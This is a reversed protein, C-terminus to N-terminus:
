LRVVNVGALFDDPMFEILWSWCPLFPCSWTSLKSFVFSFFGVFCCSRLLSLFRILYRCSVEELRISSLLVLEHKLWGELGCVGCSGGVRVREFFCLRMSSLSISMSSSMITWGTLSLLKVILGPFFPPVMMLMLLFFLSFRIQEGVLTFGVRLLALVMEICRMRSGTVLGVM